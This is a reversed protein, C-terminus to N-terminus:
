FGGIAIDVPPVDRMAGSIVDFAKGKALELADAFLLPPACVSRIWDQPNALAV